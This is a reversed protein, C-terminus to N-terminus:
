GAPVASSHHNVILWASGRREYVFTYRADVKSKSGDKNTLTFQYLGTDIADDRSLIKIHRQQIRGVPKSELFHKFYDVRGARTTRIESSVTPLLVADRAYLDAVRQANGTALAANWRDFLAEVRAKSVAARRGGSEVAQATGAVTGTGTVLVAAGAIAVGALRTRRM